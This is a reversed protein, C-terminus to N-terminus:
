EPEVGALRAAEAMRKLANAFFQRFEGSSSGVPKLGRKVFQERMERVAYAKRIENELRALIDRPTKGPAFLGWWSADFEVGTLGAELLTPVDPLLEARTSGNYALARMTGARIQPLVVAINAFIWQVEGSMLATMVAGGGKYPVHVMNTGARSNFLASALHITNGVGSSAYSIRSDPKRALALFDQVTRAPFSQRVVLVLGDSSCLLSVPAFDRVTDFPLKKRVSPNVAFSASTVLLTHGDPAAKAVIDAGVIGNAGPRNDVIFNQGTQAALQPALIRATTDPGGGPEFGVVLRVARNPYNQGSGASSHCPAVLLGLGAAGVIMLIQKVQM